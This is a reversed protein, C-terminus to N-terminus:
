AAHCYREKVDAILGTVWASQAQEPLGDASRRGRAWAEQLAAPANTRYDPVGGGALRWELWALFQEAQYQPDRKAKPSCEAFETRLIATAVGRALAWPSGESIDFEPDFKGPIEVATQESLWKTSGSLAYDVVRAPLALKVPLAAVRRDTTEIMPLYKEHEPWLCYEITRQVCLPQALPARYSPVVTIVHTAIVGVLVAMAVALRRNFLMPRVARSPLACVAVAFLLVIALRLVLSGLHLEIWPPGSLRQLQSVEGLVSVAIFWSLAASLTAVVPALLKGVLWGWATGFVILTGGLLVYKFFNALGAPFLTTATTLFAVIAVVVYPAILWLLTAGFRFGEIKLPRLAASSAQENLGRFEVGAAVWAAIGAGFISVFFASVQAAAGTEPWIGIWFRSRGFLVALGLGLLPVFGWRAFNNRVHLWLVRM